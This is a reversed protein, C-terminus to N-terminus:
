HVFRWYAPPAARLPMGRIQKTRKDPPGAADLTRGIDDIISRNTAFISHGLGFMEDGVASADITELNPVILPRGDPVDGARPSEALRRSLKLARDFRSAYLTARTAVDKIRQALLHFVDRDVDPAALIVQGLTWELADRTSLSNVVIENGMSHALVHVNSIGAEVHLINLLDILGGRSFQASDRDYLYALFNGRSPWSFLVPVGEFQLDYVIQAFRYAADDFLTNFGHVFVLAHSQNLGKIKDIVNSRSL